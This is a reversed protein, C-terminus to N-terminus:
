LIFIASFIAVYTWLQRNPASNRLGPLVRWLLIALLGAGLAWRIATLYSELPLLPPSAVHLIFTREGEFGPPTHTRLWIGSLGDKAATFVEGVRHGGTLAVTWSDPPTPKPSETQGNYDPVFFLSVDEHWRRDDVRMIAAAATNAQGEALFKPLEPSGPSILYFYFARGRSDP